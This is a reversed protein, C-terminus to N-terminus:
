RRGEIWAAMGALREVARDGNGALPELLDALERARDASLTARREGFEVIARQEAATLPVPPPAPAAPRAAARRMGASEHVVVTGAAIDGIRKFDHRLLVCGLGIGYGFPLFDAARVLNRVASALFGVPTGDDHVVRLGFLRKGPTAGAFLVEFAVPYAWTLLFMVILLIGGGTRGLLALPISVFTSIMGRLLADVIWAQARVFPGAVALELTVGEPTEVIRRTDLANPPHNTM